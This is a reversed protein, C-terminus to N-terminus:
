RKVVKRTLTRGDVDVRLVYVGPTLSSMSVVQEHQRAMRHFTLEHLKRGNNDTLQLTATTPNSTQIVVQLRDDVPNPFTVLRVNVDEYDTIATVLGTPSPGDAVPEYPPIIGPTSPIDEVVLPIEQMTQSILIGRRYENITLTVSYYGLETPADWVLEGTRSNLKFTGRRTVDNPYQYSAVSQANCSAQTVSTQAKSLGYVLSDGEPDTAALAITARRGVGVRFGNGPYGPTPTQNVLNTSLVSNLTFLQADANTINKVGTRNSLILTLPYVGPGAYTHILTYSNISTTKNEILLRSARFAKVTSGDGLCIDLVDAQDAAPKGRVEDMYLLASIRYTLPSGTIPTAQIYGGLLHSAQATSLGILLLCFLTIIKM